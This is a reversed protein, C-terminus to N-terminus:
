GKLDLVTLSESSGFVSGATCVGDGAIWVVRGTLKASLAVALQARGFATGPDIAYVMDGAARACSSPAGDFFGNDILVYVKGDQPAVNTVIGQYAAAMAPPCLFLACLAVISTRKNLWIYRKMKLGQM